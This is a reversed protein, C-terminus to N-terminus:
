DQRAVSWSLRRCAQMPARLVIERFAKEKKPFDPLQHLAIAVGTGVTVLRM